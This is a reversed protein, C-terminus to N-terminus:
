EPRLLAADIDAVMRCGAIAMANVFGDRLFALV